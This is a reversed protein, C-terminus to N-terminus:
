RPQYSYRIMWLFYLWTGVAFTIIPVGAALTITHLDGPTGPLLGTVTASVGHAAASLIAGVLALKTATTLQASTSRYDVWFAAFFFVSTVPILVSAISSAIALQQSDILPRDFLALLNLAVIVAAAVSGALAAWTALRLRRQTVLVVEDLLVLFFGIIAIYSLCYLTLMVRAVLLDPSLYFTGATRLLFILITGVIAATAAIPL